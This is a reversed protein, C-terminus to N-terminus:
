KAGIRVRSKSYVQSRVVNGEPFIQIFTYRDAMYGDTLLVDSVMDAGGDCCFCLNRYGKVAMVTLEMGTVWDLPVGCEECQLQFMSGDASRDVVRTIM